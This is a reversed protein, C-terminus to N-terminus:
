VYEPENLEDESVGEVYDPDDVEIYNDITDPENTIPNDGLQINNGIIENNIKCMFTKGEDAIWTIEDYQIM